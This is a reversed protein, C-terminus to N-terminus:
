GSGFGLSGGLGSSRIGCALGAGSVPPLQGSYPWSRALERFPPDFPGDYLSSVESRGTHLTLDVSPSKVPVGTTESPVSTAAAPSATVPATPNLANMTGGPSLPPGTHDVGAM